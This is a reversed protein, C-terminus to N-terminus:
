LYARTAQELQPIEDYFRNNDLLEFIRRKEEEGYRPWKSAARHRDDSLTVAKLGGDVALSEVRRPKAAAKAAAAASATVVASRVFDRRSIRM